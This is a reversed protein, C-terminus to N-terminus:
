KLLQVKLLLEDDITLQKIFKVANKINGMNSELLINEDLDNLLKEYKEAETPKVNKILELVDAKNIVWDRRKINSNEKRSTTLIVTANKGTIRENSGMMEIAYQVNRGIDMNITNFAQRGRYELFMKNILLVHNRIRCIRKVNYKIVNDEIFFDIISVLRNNHSAGLDYVLQAVNFGLSKEHEKILDYKDKLSLLRAKLNEYYQQWEIPLLYKAEVKLEMNLCIESNGLGNFACLDLIENDIVERKTCDISINCYQGDADLFKGLLLKEFNYKEKFNGMDRNKVLTIPILEAVPNKRGGNRISLDCEQGVLLYYNGNIYFIDGTMPPSMFENIQYDYQEFRQFAELENSEIEKSYEDNGMREFLSSLLVTRKIENAGGKYTYYRERLDIWENLIEHNTIGEEKAMASLYVAVEMNSAAYAFSEKLAEMRKNKLMTLMIKYQSMILHRKIENDISEVSKNVFGVYMEDTKRTIDEQQSSLAICIGSKRAQDNKYLEDIIDKGRAEGNMFNDIVCLFFKNDKAFLRLDEEMCKLDSASFDTYVRLPLIVGGKKAGELLGKYGKANEIKVGLGFRQFLKSNKEVEEETLNEIANKLEDLEQKKIYFEVDRKPVSDWIFRDKCKSYAEYIKNLKNKIQEDSIYAVLNGREDDTLMLCDYMVSKRSLDFKISDEVIIIGAINMLSYFENFAVQEM